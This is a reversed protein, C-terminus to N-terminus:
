RARAYKFPHEAFALYIYSGSSSNFAGSTNRHKFGNSLFDIKSGSTGAAESSNFLLYEETENVPDRATDRINWNSTSDQRKFVVYRPRFGLYVFAGNSSGNGGYAGFKSYGEISKFCYAIM